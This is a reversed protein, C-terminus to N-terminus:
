GGFISKTNDSWGMAPIYRSYSRIKSSKDTYHGIWYPKINIKELAEVFVSLDCDEELYIYGGRTYSFSTIKDQIGLKLIESFKVKVWGHGSDSYVHYKKTKQNM